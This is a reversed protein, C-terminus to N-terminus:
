LSDIKSIFPPSRQIGDPAVALTSIVECFPAAWSGNTVVSAQDLKAKVRGEDWLGEPFRATLPGVIGLSTSSANRM